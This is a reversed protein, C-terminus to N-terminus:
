LLGFLIHTVPSDCPLSGFFCFGRLSTEDNLYNLFLQLAADIGKCQFELELLCRSAAIRIQWTKSVRYPRIHEIIHDQMIENYVMKSIIQTLGVNSLLSSSVLPILESLKLAMQTLSQICCITLIGNHSPM